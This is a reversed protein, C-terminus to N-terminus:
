FPPWPVAPWDGSPEPFLGTQALVWARRHAADLERETLHPALALRLRGGPELDCELAAVVAAEEATFPDGRWAWLVTRLKTEAHFTLGHDCGYVDGAPTPLLHVGKRDANNIVADLVAMPRLQPDGSRVMMEVDVTQDVHIWFQVMGPGYPGDRLVTPPVLNWGTAESTLYAAYERGALTGDPFDWLPREGRVPKYVCLATVGDAGVECLLTGNSADILRGEVSLDGRSLLAVADDADLERAPDPPEDTPVSLPPLREDAPM